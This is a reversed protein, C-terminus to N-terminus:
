PEKRDGRVVADVYVRVLVSRGRDPYPESVSQVRLVSELLEAVERCEEESGHLRIKVPDGGAPRHCPGVRRPGGPADRGPWGRGGRRARAHCAGARAIMAMEHPCGNHPCGYSCPDADGTLILDAERWHEPGTM